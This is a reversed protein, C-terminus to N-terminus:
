RWATADAPTPVSRPAGRAGTAAGGGSGVRPRVAAASSGENLMQDGEALKTLVQEPTHRKRVKM